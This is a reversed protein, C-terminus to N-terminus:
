SFDGQGIKRILSQVQMTTIQDSFCDVPRLGNLAPVPALLWLLATEVDGEYVDIVNGVTLKVLTRLEAKHENEM